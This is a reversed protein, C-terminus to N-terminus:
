QYTFNPKGISFVDNMPRRLSRVSPSEAYFLRYMFLPYRGRLDFVDATDRFLRDILSLEQETFAVKGEILGLLVSASIPHVSLGLETAKM